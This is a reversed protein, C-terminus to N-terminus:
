AEDEVAERAVVNMAGVGMVNGYLHAYQMAADYSDLVALVAGDRARVVDFSVADTADVIPCEGSRECPCGAGECRRM